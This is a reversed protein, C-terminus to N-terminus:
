LSITYYFDILEKIKITVDFRAAYQKSYESMNSYMEPKNILSKITNSFLSADQKFLMFGNRGEEIVDRNGKGDLTIVPLGAAMAELFVLGFAESLASHIYLDCKKYWEEVNHCIGRLFIENELNNSIVLDKIMNFKEGDGILNMEFPVNEKKLEKAVEILFKQNKKYQFSGVNLLRIPQNPNIRRNNINFFRNYNFGYYILNVNKVMSSPLSKKFYKETDSSNAIFYTTTNKYKKRTIYIKEIFHLISEKKLLTSLSFNKFQVMKDHCHCVYRIDKHNYYSSLFEALFRHTHIIHPKFSELLNKYANNENEGFLRFTKYDLIKVPYNNTFETNQNNDYLAAIIFEINKTKSIECCLDMLYREAGGKGLDTILFLVRLKNQNTSIM